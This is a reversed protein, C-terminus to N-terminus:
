GNHRRRIRRITEKSFARSFLQSKGSERPAYRNYLTPKTNTSRHRMAFICPANPLVQPVLVSETFIARSERLPFKLRRFRRSTTIEPSRYHVM